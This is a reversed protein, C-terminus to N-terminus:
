GRPERDSWDVAVQEPGGQPDTPASPQSDSWDVAVPGRRCKPYKPPCPKCKPDHPDCDPPPTKFDSWDVAVQEAGGQPNAPPPAQFDSWDVAGNDDPSLAPLLVGVVVFAFATILVIGLIAKGWNISFGEANM